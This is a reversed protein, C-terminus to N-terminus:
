WILQLSSSFIYIYFHCFSIQFSPYFFVKSINPIPCYFFWHYCCMYPFFFCAISWLGTRSFCDLILLSPFIVSSFQNQKVKEDQHPYLYLKLTDHSHYNSLKWCTVNGKIFRYDRPNATFQCGTFTKTWTVISLQHREDILFLMTFVM